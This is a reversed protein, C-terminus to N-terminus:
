WADTIDQELYDELRSLAQVPNELIFEMVPEVFSPENGNPYIMRLTTISPLLATITAVTYVDKITGVAKSALDSGATAYLDVIGKGLKALRELRKM